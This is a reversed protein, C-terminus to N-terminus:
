QLVETPCSAMAAGLFVVTHDREPVPLMVHIGVPALSRVPATLMLKYSSVPTVSRLAMEADMVAVVRVNSHLTGPVMGTAELRTSSLIMDVTSELPKAVVVKSVLAWARPMTLGAEM